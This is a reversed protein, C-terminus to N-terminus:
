RYLKIRIYSTMMIASAHYVVTKTARLIMAKIRVITPNSGGGGSVGSSNIAVIIRITGSSIRPIRKIIRSIQILALDASVSM